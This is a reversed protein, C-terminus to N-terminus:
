ESVGLITDAVTSAVDGVVTTVVVKTGDVTGMLTSTAPLVTVVRRNVDRLLTVIVFNAETTDVRVLKTKRALVTVFVTTTGTVLVLTTVMWLSYKIYVFSIM